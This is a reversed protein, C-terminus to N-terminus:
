TDPCEVKLTQARFPFCISTINSFDLTYRSMNWFEAMCAYNWIQTESTIHVWWRVGLLDWCWSVNEDKEGMEYVKTGLGLQVGAV